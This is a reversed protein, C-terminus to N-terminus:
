GGAGIGRAAGSAHVPYQLYGSGRSVLKEYLHNVANLSLDKLKVSGLGPEIYLRILKEYQFATKSRLVNRKVKIWDQLYAALKVSRGEFTLGQDIQDLTRRVWEQCEARSKSGHGVRKGDLTVQAM